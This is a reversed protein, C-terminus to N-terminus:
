SIWIQHGRALDALFDTYVGPIPFADRRAHQYLWGWDSAEPFNLFQVDQRKAEAAAAKALEINQALNGDEIPIQALAVRFGPHPVARPAILPDSQCPTTM